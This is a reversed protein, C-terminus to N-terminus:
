SHHSRLLLYAIVAAVVLVFAPLAVNFRLRVLREHAASRANWMTWHEDVDGETVVDPTM